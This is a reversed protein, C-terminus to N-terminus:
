YDYAAARLHRVLGLGVRLVLEICSGSVVNLFYEELPRWNYM